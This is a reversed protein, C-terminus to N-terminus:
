RQVDIVQGIQVNRHLSWESTFGEVFEFALDGTYGQWKAVMRGLRYVCTDPFDPRSLSAFVVAADAGSKRATETQDMSVGQQPPVSYVVPSPFSFAAAIRGIIDNRSWTRIDQLTGILRPGIDPTRAFIPTSPSAFRMDSSETSFSVFPFVTRKIEALDELM